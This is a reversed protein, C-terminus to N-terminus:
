QSDSMLKEFYEKVTPLCARCNGDIMRMDCFEEFSKCGDKIMTEIEDTSVNQCVCIIL